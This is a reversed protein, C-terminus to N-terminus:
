GDAYVEDLLPATRARYGREASLTAKVAAVPDSGEILSLAAAMLCEDYLPDLYLTRRDPSIHGKCAEAAADMVPHSELPIGADGNRQALRRKARLKQGARDGHQKPKTRGTAPRGTRGPTRGAALAALARKERQRQTKRARQEVEM